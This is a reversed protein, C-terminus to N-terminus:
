HAGQGTTYCAKCICLQLNSRDRHSQAAVSSQNAERGAEAGALGSLLRNDTRGDVIYLGSLLRQMLDPLFFGRVAQEGTLTVTWM